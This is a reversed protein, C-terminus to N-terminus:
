KETVEEERAAAERAALDDEDLIHVIVETLRGDVITKATYEIDEYLFSEDEEPLHGLAESAWVAVSKAMVSPRKPRHHLLSFLEGVNMQASVEYNFGGLKIFNQAVRGARNQNRGIIAVVNQAICKTNKLLRNIVKQQRVYFRKIDVIQAYILVVPALM